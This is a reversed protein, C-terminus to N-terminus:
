VLRPLSVTVPRVTVGGGRAAVPMPVTINLQQFIPSQGDEFIVWVQNPGRQGAGSAANALALDGSVVGAMGVVGGVRQFGNRAMEADGPMRSNLLMVSQIYTSAPNVFPRYPGWSELAQMQERVAPNTTANILAQRNSGNATRQRETEAQAANIEAEFRQTVRRTREEARNAEVRAGNLDRNALMALTKYTNVMVADYGGFRYSTGWNFSAAESENILRDAVDFQSISRAPNGAQLEAAGSNLTWLLETGSGDPQPRSLTNAVAAATQYNGAGVASRFAAFDQPSTQPACAAVLAVLALVAPVKVRQSARFKRLKLGRLDAVM